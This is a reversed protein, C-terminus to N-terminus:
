PRKGKRGRGEAPRAGGVTGFHERVRSAQQKPPLAEIGECLRSFPPPPHKPPSPPEVSRRPEVVPPKPRCFKQICEIAVFAAFGALLCLVFYLDPRHWSM